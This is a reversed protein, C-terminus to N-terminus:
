DHRALWENMGKNMPVKWGREAAHAILVRALTHRKLTGYGGARFKARAAALTERADDPLRDFWTARQANVVEAVAADIAALASKAM